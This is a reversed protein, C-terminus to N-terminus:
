RRSKAPSSAKLLQQEILYRFRAGHGKFAGQSVLWSLFTHCMDCVEVLVKEPVEHDENCLPCHFTEKAGSRYAYMPPPVKVPPTKMLTKIDNKIDNRALQMVREKVTTQMVQDEDTKKGGAKKKPPAFLKATELVDKKEDEYLINRAVLENVVNEVSTEMLEALKVVKEAILYIMERYKRRLNELENYFAAKLEEIQKRINRAEAALSEIERKLEELSMKRM